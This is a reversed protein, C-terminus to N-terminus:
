LINTFNVAPRFYYPILKKIMKSEAKQPKLKVLMKKKSKVYWLIKGLKERGVTQSRLKKTFSYQHLFQEYIILSIPKHQDKRRM